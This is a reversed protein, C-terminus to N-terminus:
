LQTVKAYILNIGPEGKKQFESSSKREAAPRHSHQRKFRRRCDFTVHLLVDIVPLVKWGRYCPEALASGSKWGM